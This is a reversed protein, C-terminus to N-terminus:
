HQFLKLCRESLTNWFVRNKLTRLSKIISDAEAWNNPEAQVLRVAEIDFILPLFGNEVPQSTLITNVMNGTATELASHQNLFGGLTLGDEDPLRPGIKLYDDLEVRGATLPLLIRNVYRLAVRRVRVPKALERFLEWSRHVEPLYDDLSSYPALRNFSFGDQRVQVLQLLDEKFFQLAQLGQRASM